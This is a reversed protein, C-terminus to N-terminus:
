CSRSCKRPLDRIWERGNGRKKVTVIFHPSGRLGLFVDSIYIPSRVASKFWDASSYDAGKLDFPGAYAIQRGTADVVGLDVFVRSFVKQLHHLQRALLAEDTLEAYSFSEAVFRVKRQKESLFSDIAQSHKAVLEELHAYIKAQYISQFQDFIIGGVLILPTVSVLIVVGIMKRTLTQYYSRNGTDEVNM